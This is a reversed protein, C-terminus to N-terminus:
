NLRFFDREMATEAVGHSVMDACMQHRDPTLAGYVNQFIIAGDHSMVCLYISDKHVDLGAVTRQRDM